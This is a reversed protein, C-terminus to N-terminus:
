LFISRSAARDFRGCKATHYLNGLDTAQMMPIRAFGSSEFVISFNGRSISLSGHARWSRLTRNKRAACHRGSDSGAAIPPPACEIEERQGIGFEQYPCSSGGAPGIPDSTNPIGDYVFKLLRGSPPRVSRRRTRPNRRVGSAKRAESRSPSCPDCRQLFQKVRRNAIGVFNSRLLAVSTERFFSVSKRRNSFFSFHLRQTFRQKRSRAIPISGM